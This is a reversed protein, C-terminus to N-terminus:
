NRNPSLWRLRLLHNCMHMYSGISPIYDCIHMCIHMYVDLLSYRAHAWVRALGVCEPPPSGHARGPGPGAARGSLVLVHARGPGPGM